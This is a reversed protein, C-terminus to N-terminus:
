AAIVLTVYTLSATGVQGRVEWCGGTPFALGSSQFGTDGYGDPVSVRLPPAPGDIRGGEIRLAGSVERWWGVKAMISGDPEPERVVVNSPPVGVWLAGNGHFEAGFTSGPPKSGNPRTIPCSDVAAIRRALARERRAASGLTLVLNRNEVQLKKVRQQLAAAQRELRAIKRGPSRAADASLASLVLSAVAALVIVRIM